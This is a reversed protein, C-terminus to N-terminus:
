GPGFRHSPNLSNFQITSPSPSIAPVVPYLADISELSLPSHNYIRLQKASALAVIICLRHVTLAYCLLYFINANTNHIRPTKGRILSCTFHQQDFRFNSLSPLSAPFRRAQVVLESAGPISTVPRYAPQRSPVRRKTYELNNWLKSVKSCCMRLGNEVALCPLGLGRFGGDKRSRLYRFDRRKGKWFRWIACFFGRWVM